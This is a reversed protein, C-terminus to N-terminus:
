KKEICLRLFHLHLANREALEPHFCCVLHQKYSAAIVDGQWHALPTVQPDCHTIQPARIFVVEQEAPPADPLHLQTKGVFGDNQRGYANRQVEIPFLGLSSQTPHTVKNAILIMGACVGWLTRTQAYEKLPGILGYRELLLLMTTSEGGPIVLGGCDAFEAATRVPSAPVNLRKFKQLHPEVAGQLALIGVHLAM